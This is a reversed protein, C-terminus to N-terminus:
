RLAELSKIAREADGKLCGNGEDGPGSRSTARRLAGVARPDALDVLRAIATRRDPCTKGTELERVLQKYQAERDPARAAGPPTA